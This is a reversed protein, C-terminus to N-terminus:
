PEDRSAKLLANRLLTRDRFENVFGERDSMQPYEDADTAAGIMENFQTLKRVAEILLSSDLGLAVLTLVAIGDCKLELEQGGLRNRRSRTPEFDTWFYEHGIEHAVLAQLEAGSVLRLAPRSILVVARLHLVVAAQPVDILKTEFVHAREHYVLVPEIM